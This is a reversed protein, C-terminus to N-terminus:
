MIQWQGKFYTRIKGDPFTITVSYRYTGKPWDIIQEKVSFKGGAADTIEVEEGTTSLTKSIFDFVISTDTLDLVAGTDKDKVTFNIGLFTNGSIHPPFNYGVM